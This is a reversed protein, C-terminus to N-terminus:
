RSRCHRRRTWAGRGAGQLQSNTVSAVYEEEKRKEPCLEEDKLSASKRGGGRNVKREEM